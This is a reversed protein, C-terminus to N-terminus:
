DDLEPMGGKSGLSVEELRYADTRIL